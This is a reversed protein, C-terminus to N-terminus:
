TAKLPQSLSLILFGIPVNPYLSNEEPHLQHGSGGPTCDCLYTPYYHGDGEVMRGVGISEGREERGEAQDLTGGNKGHRGANHILM